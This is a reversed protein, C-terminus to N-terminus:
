WVCRFLRNCKGLLNNSDNAGVPAAIHERPLYTLQLSQKFREGIRHARSCACRRTFAHRLRHEIATPLQQAGGESRIAAAIGLSGCQHRIRVELELREFAPESCARRAQLRLHFLSEDLQALLNTRRVVLRDHGLRDTVRTM